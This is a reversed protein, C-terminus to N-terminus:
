NAEMILKIEMQVGILQSYIRYCLRDVKKYSSYSSEKPTCITGHFQTGIIYRMQNTVVLFINEDGKTLVKLMLEPRYENSLKQLVQKKKM